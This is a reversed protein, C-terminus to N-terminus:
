ALWQIIRQLAKVPIAGAGTDRDELWAPACSLYEITPANEPRRALASALDDYLPSPSSMLILTRSPLKAELALLDFAEIEAALKRTLPFGLVEHGGGSEGARPVPTAAAVSAELAHLEELYQRGSIVPDWLVLAEVDRPRRVAVRAALAGGLRLGLLTVRSAGSTDRVEDIAAEIDGEWGVLDADVMNGASDGTGFYDFRLTDRGAAALMNALRRM